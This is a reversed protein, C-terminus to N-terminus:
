PNLNNLNELLCGLGKWILTGGGPLQVWSYLNNFPRSCYTCLTIGYNFYGSLISLTILRPHFLMGYHLLLLLVRLWKKGCFSWELDYLPFTATLKIENRVLSIFLTLCTHTSIRKVMTTLQYLWFKSSERRMKALHWVKQLLDVGLIIGINCFLTKFHLKIIM